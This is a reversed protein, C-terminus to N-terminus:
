SEQGISNGAFSMRTGEGITESRPSKIRRDRVAVERRLPLEPGHKVKPHAQKPVRRDEWVIAVSYICNEFWSGNMRCPPISVPPQSAGGCYLLELPRASQFLVTLLCM